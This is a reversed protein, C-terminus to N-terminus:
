PNWCFNPKFIWISTVFDYLFTAMKVIFTYVVYARLASDVFAFTRSLPSLLAQGLMVFHQFYFTAVHSTSKSPVGNILYDCVVKPLTKNFTECPLYGNLYTYYFILFLLYKYLNIM